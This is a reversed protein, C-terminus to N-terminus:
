SGLSDTNICMHQIVSVGTWGTGNFDEGSILIFRVGSKDSYQERKVKKWNIVTDHNM